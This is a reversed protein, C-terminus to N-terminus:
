QRPEGKQAVIGGQVVQVFGDCGLGRPRVGGAFLSCHVGQVDATEDPADGIVHQAVVIYAALVAVDDQGHGDDAAEVGDQFRGFLSHEAHLRLQVRGADGVLILGQALRRAFGEVVCRGEPQAVQAGDALLLLQAGVEFGVEVAERGVHLLDQFLEPEAVLDRAQHVIVNEAKQDCLEEVARDVEAGAGHEVGVAAQTHGAEVVVAHAGDELLQDPAEALLVVLLGALVEGGAIDHLEHGM